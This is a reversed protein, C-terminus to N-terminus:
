LVHPGIVTLHMSRVELLRVSVAIPDVLELHTAHSTTPYGIATLSLWGACLAGGRGPSPGRFIVHAKEDADEWRLKKGRQRPLDADQRSFQDM